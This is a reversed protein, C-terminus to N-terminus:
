KVEFWKKSFDIYKQLNVINNISDTLSIFPLYINYGIGGKSVIIDEDNLETFEDRLDKVFLDIIKRAAMDPNSSPKTNRYQWEQFDLGTVIRWNYTSGYVDDHHEIGYIEAKSTTFDLYEGLEQLKKGLCFCINMYDKEEYQNIFDPDLEFETIDDYSWFIAILHTGAGADKLLFICPDENNKISARREASLPQHELKSIEVVYTYQKNFLAKILGNYDCNPNILFVDEDICTHVKVGDEKKNVDGTGRDQMDSWISEMINSLKKM